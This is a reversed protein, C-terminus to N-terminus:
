VNTSQVATEQLAFDRRETPPTSMPTSLSLTQASSFKRVDNSLKRTTQRTTNRRTTQSLDRHGPFLVNKFAKRYKRNRFSYIIPNLSSHCLALTIALEYVLGSNLTPNGSLRFYFFPLWMVTFCAIILVMTTTIKRQTKRRRQDTVSISTERIAQLRLVVLIIAYCSIIWVYGIAFIAGSFLSTAKKRSSMRLAVYILPTLWSISVFVFFRTTNAHANKYTSFPRLVALFRELSIFCLNMFSAACSFNGLARYAEDLTSACGVIGTLRGLVVAVMLPQVILTVMLDAIALSVMYYNITAHLSSTRRVGICVLINGFAGVITSLLNASVMVSLWPLPTEACSSSESDNSLLSDNKFYPDM